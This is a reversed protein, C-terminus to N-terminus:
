GALANRIAQAIQQKKIPKRVIRHIGLQMAEKESGDESFGSCLLVPIDPRIALVNRSLELGTMDPMTLDTILLDFDGPAEEIIALAERSSTVATVTYGLRTLMQQQMKVLSTEDDVVLLRENGKPIDIIPITEEESEDILAPLYVTFTSGRGTDSEVMIEGGHDKVIGHVVSLGMGTGEGQPKTTFFPDFIHNRIDPAIGHGTDQVKICVYNGPEIHHHKAVTKQDFPRNRLSIQVTGGKKKMAHAANTCLNMFIQHIQAPDAMVLKIDSPLDQKFIITAPLTAKLLQMVEMALPKLATPRRQQEAHRSFTLIQNVLESARRAGTTIEALQEMQESDPLADDMALEAFGLIAFLINNFDHAIGGALTGLAQLKQAQVL